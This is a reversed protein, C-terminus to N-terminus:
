KSDCVACKSLLMIRGNKSRALKPNNGKTTKRFKLRYSLRTKYIPYFRRYIQNLRSIKQKRKGEYGKSVFEDHSINSNILSKSVIVGIRSLKSKALM